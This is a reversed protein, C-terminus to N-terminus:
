DGCTPDRPCYGKGRCLEPDRCWEKYVGKWSPDPKVKDVEVFNPKDSSIRGTTTGQLKLKLDPDQNTYNSDPEDQM